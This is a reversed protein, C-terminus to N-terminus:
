PRQHLPFDCGQCEGEDNGCFDAFAQLLGQQQRAGTVLALLTPDDGLLRRAMYRLLHNEPLRPAAQYCALLRSQLATDGQQQAYLLLVPLVADVVVTRARQTGILHQPRGKHGGLHARDSWYSPTSPTLMATLARCLARPTAAQAHMRCLAVGAELLNTRHYHVLLQAMGALRREPTNAPRVNPQRWAVTHWARQQLAAPLRQWHRHLATLYHRTATDLSDSVMASPPVIGAMGLLLGEAAISQAAVPVTDLCQQIDQWPLLRALDQFHQRHGTSGYSRLVAEYMVQALGVEASRERWRGARQYLRTDGARELFARVERPALRRLVEYCHGPLPVYKRPYDELVIDAQYAMLPRPLWEALVVQPVLGGDARQVVTAPRDNWLCVHLIVGNYRVDRHHQHATWGSAHRHIEIDGRCRAGNALTIVAQQFDPGAQLNWRGPAHVVVARGDLTHLTTPRWRPDFWLCHVLKEPVTRQWAAAADAVGADCSPLAYLRQVSSSTCTPVVLGCPM